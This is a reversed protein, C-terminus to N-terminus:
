FDCQGQKRIFFLHIYINLLTFTIHYYATKVGKKSIVHGLYLVEERFLECKAPSIRLNAERLKQLVKKVVQFHTFPDKHHILIDDMFVVVQSKNFDKLAICMLKQYVIPANCVGFCLRKFQYHKENASFALKERDQKRISIAHFAQSLDLTSYISSDYLNSLIEKINALPASIKRSFRNLRSADVVFRRSNDKKMVAIVPFNYPSNSTEIVGEKLWKQVQKELEAAIPPSFIRTKLNIPPMNRPTHIEYEILDTAGLNGDRGYIDYYSYMLNSVAAKLKPKKLLIDSKQYCFLNDVYKRRLAQEQTSLKYNPVNGIIKEPYKEKITQEESKRETHYSIASSGTIPTKKVGSNAPKKQNKNEHLVDLNPILTNIVNSSIAPLIMNCTGQKGKFDVGHTKPQNALWRVNGIHSNNSVTVDHPLPNYIAVCTSGDEDLQIIQEENIKYYDAYRHDFFYKQLFRESLDLKTDLEQSFKIGEHPNETTIKAQIINISNAGMIQKDKTRVSLLQDGFKLQGNGHKSRDIKIKHIKGSDVNKILYEKIVPISVNPGSQLIGNRYMAQINDKQREVMRNERKREIINCKVDKYLPILKGQFMLCEKSYLIDIKNDWLSLGSLNLDCNLQRSVLAEITIRADFDTIDDLKLTLTIVGILTLKSGNAAQLYQLTIPLIENRSIGCKKLTDYNIISLSSNGSDVFAAIKTDNFSTRIFSKFRLSQKDIKNNVQMIKGAKWLIFETNLYPDVVM